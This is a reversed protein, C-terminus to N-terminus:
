SKLAERKEQVWEEKIVEGKLSVVVNKIPVVRESSQLAQEALRLLGACCPVEMTIVTLTNIRAHDILARIKELYIEKGSDLEPCAIAIAKGKLFREHFDGVSYAVCDATLLVDKERYFPAMPSVLHLQVPWHGLRSPRPEHERTSHVTVHDIKLSRSGPCGSVHEKETFREEIAVDINRAELFSLAQQLYKEEGHERLHLLHARITNTGQKIINEMVMEEDYSAAEREEVTIAGEPCHGLCAELGDCFLDSVLRAKGDIIRIAGEPCNPICLGCGTCKEEDINIIKRKM